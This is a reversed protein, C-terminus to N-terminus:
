FMWGVNMSYFTQKGGAREPTTFEESRRVQTLSFNLRGYRLAFGATLDYVTNRRDVRPSDRFLTGDLFINRAVLRYDGGLFVYWGFGTAGTGKDAKISGQLMAGGPEITDPGFGTMHEGARVIGGVRALTMVTGLTIGAHPVVQLHDDGFRQKHLYAILFAPENPIQNAWGKPQPAGIFGHWTSQVQKGLAAPGVMGLDLEVTDLRNDEIRQAVAGLYLWAAWPRDSPQAEAKRINGPTYLNQGIFLGAESNPGVDTLWGLIRNSAPELLRALAQLQQGVGIKFGNTYYRDTGALVDNEVYLQIQTGNGSPPPQEEPPAALAPSAFALTLCVLLLPILSAAPPM